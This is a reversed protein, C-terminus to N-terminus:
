ARHIRCPRREASLPNEIRRAANVRIIRPTDTAAKDAHASGISDATGALLLAENKVVSGSYKADRRTSVAAGVYRAM